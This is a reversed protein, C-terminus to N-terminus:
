NVSDKNNLILLKNTIILTNLSNNIPTNQGEIAQKLPKFIAEGSQKTFFGLQGHRQVVYRSPLIAQKGQWVVSGLSNAFPFDLGNISLRVTHQKTTEDVLPLHTRISIPYSQKNQIFNINKVLSLKATIDLPLKLDIEVANPDILNLLPMGPTVYVRNFAETQTIVGAFPAKIICKSINYDIIKLAVRQQELSAIDANLATKKQDLEQTSISKVRALQRARDLQQRTLEKQAHLRNLAAEAQEKALENNTCDLRVLVQNKKVSTGVLHANSTIIGAIESSLTIKKLAVVRAPYQYNQHIIIDSLLQTNVDEVANAKISVFFLFVIISLQSYTM